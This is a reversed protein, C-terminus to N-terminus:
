GQRFDLAGHPVGSFVTYVILLIIKWVILSAARSTAHNKVWDWNVLM